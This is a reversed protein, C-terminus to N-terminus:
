YNTTHLDAPIKKRIIKTKIANKILINIVKNYFLSRMVNTTISLKYSVM